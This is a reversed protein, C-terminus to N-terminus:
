TGDSRRDTACAHAHQSQGIESPDGARIKAVLRCSSVFQLPREELKVIAVSREDCAPGLFLLASLQRKTREM